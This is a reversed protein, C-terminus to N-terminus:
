TKMYHAQLHHVRSYYGWLQDDLPGIKTYILNWGQIEMQSSPCKLEKINFTRLTDICVRFIGMFKFLMKCSVDLVKVYKELISALTEIFNEEINSQDSALSPLKPFNLLNPNRKLKGEYKPWSYRRHVPFFCPDIWLERPAEVYDAITRYKAIFKKRWDPQNRM